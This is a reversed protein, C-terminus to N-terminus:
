ETITWYWDGRYGAEAFLAEWGAPDHHTEATLVWDLFLAREEPTRYSDVQVYSGVRALRGIERLARVCADRHLNHLTNIALVVDFSRDAFPLDAATGRVLRGVARDHANALAYASIDLGAVEIGPVAAQLDALLFGKACGVDLVRMGPALDFHAAIDEAVPVWRGDYRYGGYGTDRSGDFYEAGYQKAIAISEASRAAHRANVDRRARPYRRLLDVEAV